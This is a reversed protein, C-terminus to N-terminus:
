VCTPKRGSAHGCPLKGGRNARARGVSCAAAVPTTAAGDPSLEILKPGLPRRRHSVGCSSRQPSTAISHARPRRIMEVLLRRMRAVSSASRLPAAPARRGESTPPVLCNPTLTVSHGGFAASMAVGLMLSWGVALSAAACLGSGWFLRATMADSSAFGIERLYALLWILGFTGLLLLYAGVFVSGHHSSAM